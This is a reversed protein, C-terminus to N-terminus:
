AKLEREVSAWVESTPVFDGRVAAERGAEVATRFRADEALYFDVAERMVEEVKRGALAAIKSLQAIQEANLQVRM